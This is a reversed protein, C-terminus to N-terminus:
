TRRLGGMSRAGPPLFILLEAVTFLRAAQFEVAFTKRCIYEAITAIARSTLVNLLLVIRPVLRDPLCQCTVWIGEFGFYIASSSSPICPMIFATGTFFGITLLLIALTELTLDLTTIKTLTFIAM